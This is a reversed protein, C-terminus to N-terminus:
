TVTCKRRSFKVKSTQKTPLNWLEVPNSKSYHISNDVKKIVFREIFSKMLNNTFCTGIDTLIKKAFVACSCINIKAEVATGSKTDELPVNEPVKFSFM